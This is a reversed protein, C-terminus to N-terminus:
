ISIFNMDHQPNESLVLKRTKLIKFVVDTFRIYSSFSCDSFSSYSFKPTTGGCYIYKQFIKQAFFTDRHHKKSDQRYIKRSAENILYLGFLRKKGM